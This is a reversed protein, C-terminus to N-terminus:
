CPPLKKDETILLEPIPCSGPFLLPQQGVQSYRKTRGEERDTNAACQPLAWPVFLPNYRRTNGNPVLLCKGWVWWVAKRWQFESPQPWMGMGLGAMPLPSQFGHSLYVLQKLPKSGTELNRMEGAGLWALIKPHGCKGGHYMLVASYCCPIELSSNMERVLTLYMLSEIANTLLRCPYWAFNMWSSPLHLKKPANDVGLTVRDSVSLLAHGNDLSSLAGATIAVRGQM